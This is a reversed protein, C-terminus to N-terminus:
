SSWKRVGDDMHGFAVFERLYTCVGDIGPYMSAGTIGMQELEILGQRKVNKSICIKWHDPEEDACKSSLVRDIVEAHDLGLRSGITFHGQQVILRPFKPGFTYVHVIWDDFRPEDDPFFVGPYRARAGEGRPPLAHPTQLGYMRAVAMDFKDRRFVWLVADKDFDKQLAFFAGVWVSGTWDVLRTPGGHHRMIALASVPDRLIERQYEPLHAPAQQHFRELALRELAAKMTADAGSEGFVVDISSLIAKHGGPAGRCSILHSKSVTRLHELLEPWTKAELEMWAM